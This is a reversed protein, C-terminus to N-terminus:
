EVPNVVASEGNSDKNIMKDGCILVDESPLWTSVDVPFTARYANGEITTIIGDENTSITEDECAHASSPFGAVISAAAAFLSLKPM